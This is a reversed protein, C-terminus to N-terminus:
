LLLISALLGASLSLGVALGCIEVRAMPPRQGISSWSRRRSSSHIYVLVVLILVIVLVSKVALAGWVGNIRPSIFGCVFAFSLCAVFKPYYRRIPLHHERGKEDVSSVVFAMWTKKFDRCLEEDPLM